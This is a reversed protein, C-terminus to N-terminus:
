QHGKKRRKGKERSALKREELEFLDLKGMKKMLLKSSLDEKHGNKGRKLVYQARSELRIFMLHVRLFTNASDRLESRVCRTRQPTSSEIKIKVKQNELKRKIKKQNKWKIKIKGKEKRKVRLYHVQTIM